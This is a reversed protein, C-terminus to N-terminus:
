WFTVKVQVGYFLLLFSAIQPMLIPGLGTLTMAMGVARGRKTTFYSNMALSFGSMSMSMGIAIYVFM